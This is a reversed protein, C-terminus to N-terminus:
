EVILSPLIYRISFLISRYSNLQQQVYKLILIKVTMWAQVNQILHRTRLRGRMVSRRWFSWPSLHQALWVKETCQLKNINRTQIVKQLFFLYVAFSVIVIQGRYFCLHNCITFMSFKFVEDLFIIVGFLWRSLFCVLCTSPRISVAYLFM